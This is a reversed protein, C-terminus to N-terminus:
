VAPEIPVLDIADIGMGCGSDLQCAVAVARRADCGCMIAALAFDRGSGAAYVPDEIITPHPSQWYTLVKGGDIVVCSCYDKGKQAEPYLDALRGARVWEVMEACADSDGACGVLLEGVRHIKTTTCRLGGVSLQKDAALTRGDWVVVTM